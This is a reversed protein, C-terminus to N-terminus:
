HYASDQSRYLPVAGFADQRRPTGGRAAQADTDPSVSLREGAGPRSVVAVVAARLRDTRGVTRGDRPSLVREGSGAITRGPTAHMACGTHAHTHAHPHRRPWQQNQDQSSPVRPTIQCCAFLLFCGRHVIDKSSSSLSSPVRSSQARSGTVSCGSYRARQTQQRHHPGAASVVPTSGIQITVQRVHFSGGFKLMDSLPPVALLRSQQLLPSHVLLVTIDRGSNTYGPEHGAGRTRRQIHTVIVIIAKDRAAYCVGHALAHPRSRHTHHTDTPRTGRPRAAQQEEEGAAFCAVRFPHHHGDESERETWSVRWARTTHTEIPKRQIGAFVTPKPAAPQTRALEWHWSADQFPVV